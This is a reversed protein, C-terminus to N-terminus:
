PGNCGCWRATRLLLSRESLVESGDHFISGHRRTVQATEFRMCPGNCACGVDPILVRSLRPNRQGYSYRFVAWRGGDQRSSTQCRDTPTTQAIKRRMVKNLLVARKCGRNFQLGYTWTFYIGDKQPPCVPAFHITAHSRRRPKAPWLSRICTHAQSLGVSLTIVGKTMSSIQSICRWLQQWLSLNATRAPSWNLTM